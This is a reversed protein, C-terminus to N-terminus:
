ALCKVLPHKALCRVVQLPALSPRCLAWAMMTICRVSPFMIGRAVLECGEVSRPAASDAAALGIQSAASASM